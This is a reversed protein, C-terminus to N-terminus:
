EAASCPAEGVCNTEGFLLAVAEGNLSWAGGMRTVLAGVDADLSPKSRWNEVDEGGGMGGIDGGGSSRTCSCMDAAGPSTCYAATGM